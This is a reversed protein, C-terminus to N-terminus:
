VSSPEVKHVQRFKRFMADLMDKKHSIASEHTRKYQILKMVVAHGFGDRFFNGWKQPEIVIGFKNKIGKLLGRKSKKDSSLNSVKLTHASEQEQQVAPSQISDM